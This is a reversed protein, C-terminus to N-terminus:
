RIKQPKKVVVGRFDPSGYELLKFREAVRELIVQATKREGGRLPKDM